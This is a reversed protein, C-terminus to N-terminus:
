DSDSKRRRASKATFFDEIMNLTPRNKYAEIWSEATFVLRKRARPSQYVSLKRAAVLEEMLKRFGGHAKAKYNYRMNLPSWECAGLDTCHVDELIAAKIGEATDLDYSAPMPQFMHDPILIEDM